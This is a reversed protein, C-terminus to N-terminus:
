MPFSLHSAPLMVLVYVMLGPLQKGRKTSLAGRLKLQVSSPPMAMFIAEAECLLASSSKRVPADIARAITMTCAPTGPAADHRSDRGAEDALAAEAPAAM